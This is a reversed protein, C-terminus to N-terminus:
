IKFLLDEIDIYFEVDNATKFEDVLDAIQFYLDNDAYSLSVRRECMIKIAREVQNFDLRRQVYSILDEIMTKILNLLKNLSVM